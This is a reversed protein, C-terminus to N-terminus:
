RDDAMMGTVSLTARSSYVRSIEQEVSRGRRSAAPDGLGKALRTANPHGLLPDADLCVVVDAKDLM